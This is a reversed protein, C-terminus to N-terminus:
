SRPKILHWTKPNRTMSAVEFGLKKVLAEAIHLNTTSPSEQDALEKAGALGFTENKSVTQSPHPTNDGKQYQNIISGLEKLTLGKLRLLEGVIMNENFRHDVDLIGSQREQPTITIGSPEDAPNMDELIDMDSTEPANDTDKLKYEDMSMSHAQRVHSGLNKYEKKCLTCVDM